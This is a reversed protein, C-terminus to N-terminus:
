ATPAVEATEYCEIVDGVKVDNFNELTMGCETGANIERREEALHYLTNVKGEYVVVGDRLLRAQANRRIVGNTVMCGAVVARPIKFTERVEAEGLITERFVPALMGRLAKEIDELLEYIIKYTRIEVGDKEAMERAKADPRVNFGVIVAGSAKALVVDSEIIAGVASRLVNAKIGGVDLKGLESLVAELSGRVDAKAILKLEENQALMQDLTLVQRSTVSAAQRRAADREQAVGRARREDTVVRVEDGGEPVSNWGLVLVPRAPDAEEVNDGWEDLMARVKGWAAGAVVADGVRLTGHQVLVTALPGRGKDLHAELVVGRAPGTPSAELHLDDSVLVLGTLLDDLGQGTKGSLDIFLTDGGWEQPQLGHESLESRVRTPDSEPKDIKNVAVVVPVSAARAHDIAELTQPMVGDDAAVVLIAIDTVQAGRARMSTFAEHGPTDIFTIRQGDKTVQYAGIHQTIGGHEAAAVDAQRIRDLVTTKGHDVHGMVTIVPPRPVAGDVTAAAGDDAADGELHEEMTPDVVDVEIGLDDAVVLIEEDSLSQTISKMAGHSMLSKIVEPAGRGIKEAFDKVTIGRLVHVAGAAVAAPAPAPEAKAAPAEVPAPAAEPQPKPAPPPPPPAQQAPKPAPPPTPPEEVVKPQAKKAKPKEDKPKEAKPKPEAKAPAAEAAPASGGGKLQAIVSEDVSSSHSKVEVGLAKLRELIEKNSIGLEKAAEYVRVKGM